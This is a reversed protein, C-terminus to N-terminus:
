KGLPVRHEKRLILNTWDYPLFSPDEVPSGDLLRISLGLERSLRYFDEPRVGFGSEMLGRDYEVVMALREAKRVTETAGKLMLYECGQIDAKVFDPGRQGNFYADLSTTHVSVEPNHPDAHWLRNDGKNESQNLSLLAEGVKEAVALPEATINTLTESNRKLVEYNWPDPEFAYVRGSGGVLRAMHLTFFGVHAGADVATMGLLLERELVALVEPEYTGHQAIQDCVAQDGERLWMDAGLSEVFRKYMSASRPVM